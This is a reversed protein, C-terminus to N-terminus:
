PEPLDMRIAKAEGCAFVSGGADALLATYKQRLTLTLEPADKGPAFVYVTDGALACLRDGSLVADTVEGEVTVNYIVQAAKDFVMIETFNNYRTADCLVILADGRIRASRVTSSNLAAAAVTSGDDRFVYWGDTTLVAVTEEDLWRCDVPYSNELTWESDLTDKGPSAVLFTTQMVGNETLVAAILLRSTKESIGACVAYEPLSYRNLLRSSADYLLIESVATTGDCVLTYYGTKGVAAARINGPATGRKVCTFSNYVGYGGGGVDYTLLYRGSACLRPNRLARFDSQIEKGRSSFVTLKETGLVALGDRYLVYQNDSGATYVLTESAVTERLSLSTRLDKVFYVLSDTSLLDTNSLFSVAIFVALLMLLVVQASVYRASVERYYEGQPVATRVPKKPKPPEPSPARDAPKGANQKQKALEEMFAPLKM